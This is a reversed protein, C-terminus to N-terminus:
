RRLRGMPGGRRRGEGPRRLGIRGKLPCLVSRLAMGWFAAAGGFVAACIGWVGWSPPMGAVLVVVPVGWAVVTAGLAAAMGARISRIM